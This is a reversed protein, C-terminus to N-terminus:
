KITCNILEANERNLSFKNKKLTWHIPKGRNLASLCVNKLTLNGTLTHTKGTFSLSHGGGEITLAKYRNKIPFRLAAGIDVDGLLRITYEASSNKAKNIANILDAWDAYTKGDMALKMPYIFVKGSKTYLGYNYEGDKVPPVVASIDIVEELATQKSAFVQMNELTKESKLCVHGVPEGSLKIPKFGEKLEIVGGLGFLQKKINVKAGKEVILRGDKGITLNNVTLSKKVTLTGDIVLEGFGSLTTVLVEGEITCSRKASGKVVLDDAKVERLLLDGKTSRVSTRKGDFSVNDLTLGGAAGVVSINQPKGKANAAKVCIDKLTLAQAPRISVSGTFGLTHGNDGILIEKADAAKPFRMKAGYIDETLALVVHDGKATKLSNEFATKETIKVAGCNACVGDEGFSHGLPKVEITSRSLETNCNKCRIVLDYHGYDTCTPKVENERQQTGEVHVHSAISVAIQLTTYTFYAADSGVYEATATITTGAALAKTRDSERWQWGAPLPVNGVTQCSSPVSLSASPQPKPYEAKSVNVMIKAEAGKYNNTAPISATIVAAGPKLISVTQGSLAIVDAGETVALEIDASVNSSIGTLLFAPDLYQKQYSSTRLTITAESIPTIEVTTPVPKSPQRLVYNDADEGILRLAPLTVATYSGAADSSLTGTLGATDVSVDETGIVGNIEVATVVVTKEGNYSRNQASAGSVTLPAQGIVADLRNIDGALHAKDAAARYYVAYTGPKTQKPISSGFSKGDTSYEVGNESDSAGALLLPQPSGNYTLSATRPLTTIAARDGTIKFSATGNILYNGGERNKILVAATGINTNNYYSIEYEDAPIMEGGDSVSLVAPTLAEGTYEKEAYELTINPSSVTKPAITYAISATKGGVTIQATYSGADSPAQELLEAGKRYTVAPNGLVDAKGDVLAEVAKGDGYTEHAPPSLTLIAKHEPLPCNEASCDATVTAGDASYTFSHIHEIWKAYATTDERIPYSFLFKQSCSEDSFWGAFAFGEKVPSSAPASVRGGPEVTQSPIASGGMSNFSVTFHQGPQLDGAFTVNVPKEAGTGFKKDFAKLREPLVHCITEKNKKFYGTGNLEGANWTLEEPAAYLYIDRVAESGSFANYAIETVSGPITVSRLNACNNFANLPLNEVGEPIVISELASCGMFANQGIVRLSKPLTVYDLVACEYFASPGIKTLTEPLKITWMRLSKFCNEGIGTIGSRIDVTGTYYGYNGWPAFTGLPMDDIEGTGSIILTGSSADFRWWANEGCKGFPLDGEWTVDLSSYKEQYESLMDPCVHCITAKNEKFSFQDTNVWNLKDPAPYLYIDEMATCGWFAWDGILSVSDPITVRKLASCNLFANAQLRTVGEPIVIEELSRCAHFAQMGILSITKPLKVTRILGAEDFAYTGITQVGEEVVVETMEGFFTSWPSLWGSNYGSMVSNGSITLMGTEHDYEWLNDGGCEGMATFKATVTVDEEPMQFIYTEKGPLEYVHEDHPSPTIEKGNVKVYKPVFNYRDGEGSIVTLTVTDGLRATEMDSTITGGWIDSPVSVSYWAEEFKASILVDSTPMIFSYM